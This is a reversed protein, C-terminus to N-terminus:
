SKTKRQALIIVLVLLIIVLTVLAIIIPTNFGIANSKVGSFFDKNLMIYYGINQDLTVMDKYFEDFKEMPVHDSQTKYYYDLTIINSQSDYNSSYDYYFFDSNITVSESKAQIKEPLVVKIKQKRVMPYPLAFPASRELLNPMSLANVLNSPLITLGMTNPNEVSPRWISDIQYRELLAFENNITDDVIVPPSIAAISGYNDAYYKLLEKELLEKNNNRFLGRMFDAEGEYYKSQVELEAGKKGIKSLKYTSFVDVMNNGFEPLTDFAALKTDLVLGYRYDPIYVKDYSGGQNTLTPDYWRTSDTHDVVKVICHDFLKSSPSLQPLKQRLSTNVLTPYAEIDLANLITTLLVSKDKCDGFRQELVKNPSNPKYGGIGSHVALYRIENQVFSLAAKIRPGDKKHSSKIENVIQKLGESLPTNFTYIDEGWEIVEKWSDYETVQVFANQMHWSPSEEQVLVAAVDTDTWSYHHVGNNVQLIEKIDTNYVRHNITRKVFVHASVKNIAQSTNLIFTTSFKNKQIPNFGKISYSSILVDGMRIDPINIFASISGDYIYNEANTERRATQIEKYNLKNIRIGNRIVEIKHFRLKQYSPDYDISVTSINQIGSYEIVKSISKVYAEELDINAQETYLLIHIGGDVGNEPVQANENYSENVIWKPEPNITVQSNVMQYCFFLIFSAVFFRM